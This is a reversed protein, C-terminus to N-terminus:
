SGETLLKEFGEDYEVIINKWNYKEVFHATKQKRLISVNMIMRQLKNTMDREDKYFFSSEYAEPLHEPYALRKPLLPIVNCSIAEVVSIGFFDHDSTVPLIDAQWLWYAYEQKSQAFGFHILEEEFLEPVEQFIEPSREFQEGLVILKFEIGREKITKLLQFFAEPNKDHEWRHNWLIVARNHYVVKEPQHIKLFDLDLGIPVIKSKDRITEIQGKENPNPFKRLFDPLAQLFTEKHFASNFWVESACLASKFNILGYHFDTKQENQFPYTIQNEHFYLVIPIQQFRLPLLGKFEALNLMDSVIILDPTKNLEKVRRAMTVAANSMRWKWHHDSLTLTLINHKSNSALGDLWQKHSGGYFPEIVLINM